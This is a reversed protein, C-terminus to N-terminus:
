ETPAPERPGGRGGRGGGRGGRRGGEPRPRVPFIPQDVLEPSTTSVVVEQQYRQLSPEMAAAIEKATIAQNEKWLNWFYYTFLGQDLKNMVTQKATQSDLAASLSLVGKPLRAFRPSAPNIDWITGSHCCDSILVTRANPNKKVALSRNRALYDSLEDDLIYGKNFVMAEDFGDAEDGSRDKVSAGHGTYFVVLSESVKEFL